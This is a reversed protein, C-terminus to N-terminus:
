IDVIDHTKAENIGGIPNRVITEALEDNFSNNEFFSDQTTGSFSDNTVSVNVNTCTIVSDIHEEEKVDKNKYCCRCQLYYTIYNLMWNM